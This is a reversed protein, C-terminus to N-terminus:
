LTLHETAFIQGDRHHVVVGEGPKLDPYTLKLHAFVAPLAPRHSCLVTPAKAELAEAVGAELQARAAKETLRPDSRVLRGTAQAFPEVTQLCRTASSSVVDEVGYARLLPVLKEARLQGPRTLPRKEDDTRWTKRSRATAHRLIVLTRTKHAKLPRAECFADLVDIDFDYSLLSRAKKISVWRIEDVEDDPTFPESELIRGVWYDVVKRGRNVRYTVTKLPVGLRITVGTEEAVERVATTALAEGRDRKGKPFSWDDYRPRHVVLVEPGAGKEASRRWVVAGAAQVVREPTRSAM